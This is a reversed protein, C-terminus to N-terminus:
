FFLIVFTRLLQFDYKLLTLTVPATVRLQETFLQKIFLEKRKFKSYNKLFVPSQKQLKLM